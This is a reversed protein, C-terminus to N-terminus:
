VYIFAFNMPPLPIGAMSFQIGWIKLEKMASYTDHKAQEHLLNQNIM